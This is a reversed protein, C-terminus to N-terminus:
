SLFFLSTEFAFTSGCFQEQPETVATFVKSATWLCKSVNLWTQIWESDQHTQHSQNWDAM